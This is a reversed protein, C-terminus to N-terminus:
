EFFNYFVEIAAGVAAAEEGLSGKKIEIHRQNAIAAHEKIVRVIEDFYAEYHYILLGHLIVAEPHLINVMNAVGIGFHYASTLVIDRVVADGRDLRRLLEEATELDSGSGAAETQATENIMAFLANISTYAALCGKKGCTCARGDVDIIIHGYSSVDGEKNNLFVGNNIFGCRIGYGSICYLISEDFVARFHYEALGATNAGNNLIVPVAFAEELMSVVPVNEWGEAPFLEPNLIVGKERNLPGVAGVGIGILADDAKEHKKQFARIISLIDSVTVDPTHEQTIIFGQQDILQFQLDTLIVKVHTRSIEVGLLYGADPTIEYLVPPRGGASEGFGFKRILGNEELDDIMRTMTTQPIQYNELLEVKSVHGRQHIFRYVSKKLENRSSTNNLFERLM